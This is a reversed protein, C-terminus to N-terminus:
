VLSTGTVKDASYIRTITIHPWTQINSNELNLFGYGNVVNDVTRFIIYADDAPWASKLVVAVFLFIVLTLAPKGTQL